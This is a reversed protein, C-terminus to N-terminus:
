SANSDNHQNINFVEVSAAAKRNCVDSGFRLLLRCKCM